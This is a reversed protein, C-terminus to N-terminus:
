VCSLQYELSTITSQRVSIATRLKQKQLEAQSLVAGARTLDNQMERLGESIEERVLMAAAGEFADTVVVDRLMEYQMLRQKTSEWDSRASSVDSTANNLAMLADDLAGLAAQEDNIRGRLVTREAERAAARALVDVRAIAKADNGANATIGEKGMRLAGEKTYAAMYLM